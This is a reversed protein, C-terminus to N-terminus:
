QIVYIVLARSCLGGKKKQVIIKDLMVKGKRASRGGFPSRCLHNKSGLSSSLSFSFPLSGAHM